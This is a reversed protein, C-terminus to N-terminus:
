KNNYYVILKAFDLKSYEGKTFQHRKEYKNRENFMYNLLANFSNHNMTHLDLPIYKEKGHDKILFLMITQLEALLIHKVLDDPHKTNM